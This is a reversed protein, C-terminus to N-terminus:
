FCFNLFIRILGKQDKTVVVYRVLCLDYYFLIFLVIVYYKLPSVIGDKYMIPNLTSQCVDKPGPLEKTMTAILEALPGDHFKAKILLKAAAKIASKEWRAYAKIPSHNTFWRRLGYSIFLRKMARGVGNHSCRCLTQIKLPNM